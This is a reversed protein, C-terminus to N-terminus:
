LKINLQGGQVKEIEVNDIIEGTEINIVKDDIIKLTKKYDAWKIAKKIEIFKDSIENFDIEKKLKMNYKDKPIIIKGSVLEYSKQTKTDKMKDIEILAAITTKVYKEQSLIQEQYECIKEQYEKKMEEALLILRQKEEKFEKFEKLIKEMKYDNNMNKNDNKNNMDKLRWEKLNKLNKKLERKLQDKNM